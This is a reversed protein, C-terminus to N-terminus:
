IGIILANGASYGRNATHWGSHTDYPKSLEEALTKMENSTYALKSTPEDDDDNISVTSITAESQPMECREMINGGNPYKYRFYMKLMNWRKKITSQSLGDQVLKLFYRQLTDSDINCVLLGGLATSIQKITDEDTQITRASRPRGGTRSYRKYSNYWDYLDDSLKVKGEKKDIEGDIEAIKRERAKQWSARAATKSKTSTGKCNWTVGKYTQVKRAVWRQDYEDWKVEVEM